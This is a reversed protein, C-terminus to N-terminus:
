CQGVSRGEGAWEEDVEEEAGWGGGWYGPGDGGVEDGGVADEVVGGGM